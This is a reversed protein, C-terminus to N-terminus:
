ARLQRGMWRQRRGVTPSIVEEGNGRSCLKGSLCHAVSLCVQSVSAAAGEASPIRQLPVAPCRGPLVPCLAPAPRDLPAPASEPASPPLALSQPEQAEQSSRPGCNTGSRRLCVPRPTGRAESDKEEERVGDRAQPARDGPEQAMSGKFRGKRVSSLRDNSKRGKIQPFKSSMNKEKLRQDRYRLTRNQLERVKYGWKKTKISGFHSPVAAAQEAHPCVRTHPNIM